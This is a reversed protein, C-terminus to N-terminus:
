VREDQRNRKQSVRNDQQGVGAFRKRDRDRLVGGFAGQQGLNRTRYRMVLGVPVGADPEFGHLERADLLDRDSVIRKFPILRILGQRRLQAVPGDRLVAIVDQQNRMSIHSGHARRLRVDQRRICLRRCIRLIRIHAPLIRVVLNSYAVLQIRPGRRSAVDFPKDRCSEAGYCATTTWASAQQGILDERLQRLLAKPAVAGLRM